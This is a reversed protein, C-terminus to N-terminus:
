FEYWNLYKVRVKAASLNVNKATGFEDSIQPIHSFGQKVNVATLEDQYILSFFM